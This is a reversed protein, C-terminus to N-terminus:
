RGQPVQQQGQQGAQEQTPQPQTPQVPAAQTQEAPQQPQQAQAPAEQAPPQQAPAPAPAPAGRVGFEEITALVKDAQDLAERVQVLALRARQAEERASAVQGELDMAREEAEELPLKWNSYAYAGIVILGLAFGIIFGSGFGWGRGARGEEVTGTAPPAPQEEPAGALVQQEEAM